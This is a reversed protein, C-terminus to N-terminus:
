VEEAFPHIETDTVVDLVLPSIVRFTFESAYMAVAVVYELPMFKSMM